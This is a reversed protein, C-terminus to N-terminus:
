KVSKEISSFFSILRDVEDEEIPIHKPIYKAGEVLDFTVGYAGLGIDNQSRGSASFNASKSLTDFIEKANKYGNVGSSEGESMKQYEQDMLLSAKCIKKAYDQHNVTAITYDECLRNYYNDLYEIESPTFRGGWQKSFSKIEEEEDNVGIEVFEGKRKYIFDSDAFTGDSLYSMSSINKIYEGWKREAQIWRDELFPRNMIALIQKVRVEYGNENISGIFENICSKCIPFKEATFLDNKNEYFNSNNVAKNKLCRLCNIKPQDAIKSTKKTNKITRSVVM